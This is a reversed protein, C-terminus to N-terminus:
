VPSLIIIRISLNEPRSPPGDHIKKRNLQLHKEEITMQTFVTGKAYPLTMWEDGVKIYVRVEGKNIVDTTIEDVFIDNKWTYGDFTWSTSDRTYPGILTQKLNGTKGPTGSEGKPGPVNKTCSILLSILVVYLVIFKRIMM